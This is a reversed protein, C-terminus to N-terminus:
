NSTQEMQNRSCMLVIRRNAGTLYRWGTQWGNLGDSRPLSPPPSPKKTTENAMADRPLALCYGFCIQVDRFQILGLLFIYSITYKNTWLFYVFTIHWLVNWQMQPVNATCEAFQTHQISDKAKERRKWCIEKTAEFISLFIFVVTALTIFDCFFISNVFEFTPHCKWHHAM